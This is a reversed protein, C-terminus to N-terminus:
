GERRSMNQHQLGLVMIIPCFNEILNVITNKTLEQQMYSSKGTYLISFGIRLIPYTM